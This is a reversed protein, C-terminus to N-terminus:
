SIVDVLLQILPDEPFELFSKLLQFLNFCHAPLECAIFSLRSKESTVRSRIEQLIKAKQSIASAENLLIILEADEQVMKEQFRM